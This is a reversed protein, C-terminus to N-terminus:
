RAHFGFFFIEVALFVFGAVGEFRDLHFGCLGTIAVRCPMDCAVARRSWHDYLQVTSLENRRM